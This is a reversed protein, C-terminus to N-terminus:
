VDFYVLRYRDSESGVVSFRRTPSIGLTARFRFVSKQSATRYHSWDPPIMASLLASNFLWFRSATTRSMMIRSEYEIISRNRSDNRRAGVNSPPQPTPSSALLCYM